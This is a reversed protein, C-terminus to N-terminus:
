ESHCNEGQQQKAKMYLSTGPFGSCGHQAASFAVNIAVEDLLYGPLGTRCIQSIQASHEGRWVQFDEHEVEALPIQFIKQAIHEPFTTEILDRKRMRTTTEMLRSASEIEPNNVKNEIGIIDIGPIWCDNWVSVRDGKGIRWCLGDKLLGKSARISRQALLSDPYNILRWGALSMGAILVLRFGARIKRITLPVM